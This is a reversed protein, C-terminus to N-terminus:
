SDILGSGSVRPLDVATWHDFVSRAIDDLLQQKRNGDGGTLVSWGADGESEAQVLLTLTIKVDSGRREGWETCWDSDGTTTCRAQPGGPKETATGNGTWQVM